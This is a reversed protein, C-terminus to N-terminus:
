KIYLTLLKCGYIKLEEETRPVLIHKIKARFHHGKGLQVVTCKDMLRCFFMKTVDM